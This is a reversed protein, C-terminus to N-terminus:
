RGCGFTTLFIYKNKQCIALRHPSLRVPQGCSGARRADHFEQPDAGGELWVYLTKWPQSESGAHSDDGHPAVCLTAASALPVFPAPAALWLLFMATDALREKLM